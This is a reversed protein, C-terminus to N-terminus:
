GEEALNKTCLALFDKSAGDFDGSSPDYEFNGYGNADANGSSIAFAPCGGFNWAFTATNRSEDTNGFFYAGLVTSAPATISIGTSSVLTGNDSFYLKNNDLDMYVGVIDGVHITSGYSTAVDGNGDYLSGSNFFMGYSNPLYGMPNNITGGPGLHQVSTIGPRGYDHEAKSVFKIETYWKGSSVGITSINPAPATAPSSTVASIQLCNGEAFTANSYFNELPNIVAFNNTPTDTAQDAAALNTQSFDNGEGSVDNGLDASDEFDLWFGNDGFTLGSPDKPKWITPSDDDFEGFDSAAYAQGDCFVCEAIYGDFFQSADNYSGISHKIAANIASNQNQDPNTDTTFVTEETGNVYIRMRNGATANGSDYVYVIHYWAAVDRLQRTTLLYGETNNSLVNRFRLQEGTGNVQYLEVGAEKDDAEFATFVNQTLDTIFGRKIWCSFTWKDINTATGMTRSMAVSDGDNFRCSNAISYAGATASAVNGPLILPM